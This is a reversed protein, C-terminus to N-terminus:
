LLESFTRESSRLRHSCAHICYFVHLKRFDCVHQFIPRHPNAPDLPSPVVLAFAFVYDTSIEVRYVVRIRCFSFHRTRPCLQASPRSAFLICYEARRRCKGVSSFSKAVCACVSRCGHAFDWVRHPPAQSLFFGYCTARRRSYASGM